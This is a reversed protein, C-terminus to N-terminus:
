PAKGVAAPTPAPAEPQPALAPVPASAPAETVPAVPAAAVPPTSSEPAKQIVAEEHKVEAKLESAADGADRSVKDFDVKQIKDAVTKLSGKLDVNKDAWALATELIPVSVSNKAWDPLADTEGKYAMFLCTAFVVLVILFGRAFGFIAGGLRDALTLGAVSVWHSVMMRILVMVIFVALFVGGYAVVDAAVTPKLLSLVTPKEDAPNPLVGLWKSVDPLLLHGAKVSVFTALALGALMFFERVIGRYYAVLTSLLLIIGITLDLAHPTM